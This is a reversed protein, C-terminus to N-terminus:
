LSISRQSSSGLTESRGTDTVGPRQVFLSIWGETKIRPDNEHVEFVRGAYSELELRGDDHRGIVTCHDRIVYTHTDGEEGPAIDVAGPVPRPGSETRQFTVHDNIQLYRM